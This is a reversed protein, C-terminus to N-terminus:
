DPTSVQVFLRVGEGVQQPEQIFPVKFSHMNFSASLELDEV